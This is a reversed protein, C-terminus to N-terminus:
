ARGRQDLADNVSEKPLYYTGWDPGTGIRDYGNADVERVARYTATWKPEPGEHTIATTYGWTQLGGAVALFVEDRSLGTKEQLQAITLRRRQPGNSLLVELVKTDNNM